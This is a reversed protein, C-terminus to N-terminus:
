ADEAPPSQATAAVSKKRGREKKKSSSTPGYRRAREIAAILAEETKAYFSYVIHNPDETQRHTKHVLLSYKESFAKINAGKKGIFHMMQSKLIIVESAVCDRMAGLNVESAESSIVKQEESAAALQIERLELLRRVDNCGWAIMSESLPREEWIAGTTATAKYIAPDRPPLKELSFLELTSNLNLRNATDPSPSLTLQWCQTDHVGELQIGKLHYLADSIVKCDHVVKIISSDELVVKLFTWVVTDRDQNLVDFLLFWGAETSMQVLSFNGYRGSNVGESDLGFVRGDKLLRRAEELVELNDIVVVRSGEVEKTAM